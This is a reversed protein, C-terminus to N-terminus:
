QEKNWTTLVRTGKHYNRQLSESSVPCTAQQHPSFQERGIRDLARFYDYTCFARIAFSFVVIPAQATAPSKSIETFRACFAYLLCM